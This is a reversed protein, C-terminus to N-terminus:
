LKQPDRVILTFINQAVIKRFIRSPHLLVIRVSPTIKRKQKPKKTPSEPTTTDAKSKIQSALERAKEAM